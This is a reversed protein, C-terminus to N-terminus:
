EAAAVNRMAELVRRYEGPVVRVFRAVTEAWNELLRQAKTSGTRSVHEELLDKLM